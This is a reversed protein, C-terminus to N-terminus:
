GPAPHQTGKVALRLRIGKGAQGGYGQRLRSRSEGYKPSSASHLVRHIGNVAGYYSPM